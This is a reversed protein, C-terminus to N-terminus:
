GEDGRLWAGLLATCRTIQATPCAEDDAHALTPDGPGFNVAPVGLASFRAVDTWGLKAVPEAGTGARVVDAFGRALPHDLGPRAGEVLDEVEIEVDLGAFVERVHALAEEGSRSPAFRHNVRITCVDPVSNTAVGGAIGVANLGERYTLGDVEVTRAEYRALRELVPGAGHIANVGLWSRASHAVKGRTTVAVRLTGQCGGEVGGNTPEGLVALDSDAFWEPHNRAARGLGNLSGDVEEHDYFVYTVDVAPEPVGAALVAIMACGGLMDVTGRGWLMEGHERDEVIRTPLNPQPTTLPVTDIHGALVVRRARGLETRAVVCDGDRLVTLHPRIRLDAEIADALATEEGSVSPIDCMARTVEVASTTALDPLSAPADSPGASTPLDTDTM